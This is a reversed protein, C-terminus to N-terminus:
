GLLVTIAINRALNRARDMLRKPTMLAGYGEHQRIVLPAL